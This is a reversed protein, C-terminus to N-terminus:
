VTIGLLEKAAQRLKKQGAAYGARYAINAISILHTLQEKSKIEFATYFLTDGMEDTIKSYQGEKEIGADKPDIWQIDM